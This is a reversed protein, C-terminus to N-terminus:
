NQPACAVRTSAFGVRSRSSKRTACILLLKPSDGFGARSDRASGLPFRWAVRPFLYISEAIVAGSTISPSADAEASFGNARTGSTKFLRFKLQIVSRMEPTISAFAGRQHHTANAM